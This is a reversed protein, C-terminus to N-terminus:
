VSLLAQTQPNQRYICGEAPEDRMSWSKPSLTWYVSVQLSFGSTHAVTTTHMFFRCPMTYDPANIGYIIFQSTTGPLPAQM